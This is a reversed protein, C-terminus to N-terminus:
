TFHIVRYSQEVSGPVIGVDIDCSVDKPSSASVLIDRTPVMGESSHDRGTKWDVSTYPVCSKQRDDVSHEHTIRQM